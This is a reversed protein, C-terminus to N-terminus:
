LGLAARMAKTLSCASKAYDAWPDARLSALRAPLTELNFDAPRLDPALEDWAIPTSVTAGSRARPSYAAVATAGEGNRLYDIFVRGSRKAKAMNATFRDPALRALHSAAAHAFAKVEDWGHRRKLPVVLHLGKGGTTKLFATLGLEELLARTLRAAEVVRVWPVDPAPDLDLTLRDPRDARPLTAGWTHFEVVGRQVMGIVGQLNELYLYTQDKASSRSWEFTEVGEPRSQAMHKQFFCEATSGDPCRLLALPRNLLHPLFWDAV